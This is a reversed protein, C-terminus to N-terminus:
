IKPKVLLDFAAQKLTSPTLGFQTKTLASQNKTARGHDVYETVAQLVGWRTGRIPALNPATAYIGAVQARRDAIMTAAPTPGGTNTTADAPMPMLKEMFIEFASDSMEHEVLWEGQRALEETRLNRLNLVNHAEVLREAAKTTHRVRVIRNGADQKSTAYTLTNACVVRMDCM